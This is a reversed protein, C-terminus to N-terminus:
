NNHINADLYNILADFDESYKLDKFWYASSIISFEYTNADKVQKTFQWVIDKAENFAGTELQEDYLRSILTNEPMGQVLLRLLTAETNEDLIHLSPSNKTSIEIKFNVAEPHPFKGNYAHYLLQHANFFTEHLSLDSYEEWMKEDQMEHSLNQKQGANLREDFCYNLIIMAADEPANESLFMLCMDKLDTDAIDSIDGYDMAELLAKYDNLTWAEPLTEITKFELLKIRFNSKM